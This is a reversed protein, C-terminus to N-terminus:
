LLLLQHVAARMGWVGLICSKLPQCLIFGCGYGAVSQSMGIMAGDRASDTGGVCCRRLAQANLIVPLLTALICFSPKRSLFSVNSDFVLQYPGEKRWMVSCAAQVNETPLIEWLFKFGWCLTTIGCPQSITLNLFFFFFFFPSHLYGDRGCDLACAARAFTELQTRSLQTLLSLAALGLDLLLADSSVATTCLLM